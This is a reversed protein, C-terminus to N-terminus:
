ILDIENGDLEELLTMLEMLELVEYDVTYTMMDENNQLQSQQYIFFGSGALIALSAAVATLQAPWKTVRSNLAIQRRHALEKLLQADLNNISQDLAETIFKHKPDTNDLKNNPM